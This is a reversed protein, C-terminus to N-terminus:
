KTDKLAVTFIDESLSNFFEETVKIDAHSIQLRM